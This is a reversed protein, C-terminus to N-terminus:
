AVPWLADVLGTLVPVLCAWATLTTAGVWKNSFSQLAYRHAREPHKQARWARWLARLCASCASCAPVCPAACKIVSNVIVANTLAVWVKWALPGSFSGWKEAREAPSLLGFMYVLAALGM